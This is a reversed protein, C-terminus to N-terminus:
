GGMRQTSSMRAAQQGFGGRRVLTAPTPQVMSPRVQIPGTRQTIPTNNATRFTQRDDRSKYLPQPAIAGRTGAAAAAGSALGQNMMRGALFGAMMPVFFSGAQHREPAPECAAAGFDAECEAQNIYRPASERHQVRAEEWVGVCQEVSFGNRSCENIDEFTVADALREGGCGTLTVALMPFVVPAMLVLAVRQSRKRVSTSRPHTPNTM